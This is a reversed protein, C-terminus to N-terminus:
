ATARPSVIPARGSAVVAGALELGPIDKPAGPPAPYRGRRQMMDAGNLGAAHVRVLVESPGPTPDPRDQVRVEGDHITVARM